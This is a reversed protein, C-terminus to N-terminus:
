SEIGIAYTSKTVDQQTNKNILKFTGKLVFSGDPFREVAKQSVNDSSLHLELRYISNEYVRDEIYTNKPSINKLKEYTGNVKIIAADNESFDIFVYHNGYGKEWQSEDTYLFLRGWSELNKNFKAPLKSEYNFTQINLEEIPKEIEKETKTEISISDKSLTMTDQTKEENEKIEKTEQKCSVLGIFLIGFLISNKM